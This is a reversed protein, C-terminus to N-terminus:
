IIVSESPSTTFFFFLPTALPFSYSTFSQAGILDRKDEQRLDEGKKDGQKTNAKRDRKIGARTGTRTGTKIGARIGTRIGSGIGVGTEQEPDEM